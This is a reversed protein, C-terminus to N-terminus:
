WWSHNQWHTWAAQPTGYRQKAYRLAALSQVYRRNHACDNQVQWYCVFRVHAADIAPRGMQGLGYYPGAGNFAGTNFSSENCIIKMMARRPELNTGWRAPVKDHTNAAARKLVPYFWTPVGPHNDCGVVTTGIDGEPIGPAVAAAQVPATLIGGLMALAVGAIWARTRGRM